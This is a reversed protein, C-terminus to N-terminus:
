INGGNFWIAQFLNAAGSTATRYVAMYNASSTSYFPFSVFGGSLRFYGIAGRIPVGNELLTATGDLGYRRIETMQPNMTRVILSTILWEGVYGYPSITPVTFGFIAGFVIKEFTKGNCNAAVTYTSWNASEVMTGDTYYIRKYYTAGDTKNGTYITPAITQGFTALGTLHISISLDLPDLPSDYVEIGLSGENDAIFTLDDGHMVKSASSVQPYFWQYVHNGDPAPEHYPLTASSGSFILTGSSLPQAEKGNLHAAQTGIRFQSCEITGVTNSIFNGTSTIMYRQNLTLTDLTVWTNATGSVTGSWALEGVEYTPAGGDCKLLIGSRATSSGQVKYGTVYSLTPAAVNWNTWVWADDYKLSAHNEVWDGIAGTVYQASASTASTLYTLSLLSDDADDLITSTLTVPEYSRQFLETDALVDHYILKDTALHYRSSIVSDNSYLLKCVDTNTHTTYPFTQTISLVGATTLHYVRVYKLFSSTAGDYEWYIAQVYFSHDTFYPVVSFVSYTQTCYDGDQLPNHLDRPFDVRTLVGTVTNLLAVGETATVAPNYVNESILAYRLAIVGAGNDASWGRFNQNVYHHYYGNAGIGDWGSVLQLSQTNANYIVLDSKSYGGTENYFSLAFRQVGAMVSVNLLGEYYYYINNDMDYTYAYPYSTALTCTLATWDVAYFFVEGVADSGVADYPEFVLVGTTDTQPIYDGEWAGEGYPDPYASLITDVQGTLTNKRLLNALNFNVYFQYDGAGGFVKAYAYDVYSDKELDNGIHNQIDEVGNFLPIAAIPEPM